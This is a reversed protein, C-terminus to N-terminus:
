SSLAVTACDVPVPVSLSDSGVSYLSWANDSVCCQVASCQVTGYQIYQVNCYPVVDNALWM